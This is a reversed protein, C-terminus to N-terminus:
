GVIEVVVEMEVVKVVGEVDSLFSKSTRSVEEFIEQSSNVM